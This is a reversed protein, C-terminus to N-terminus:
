RRATRVHIPRGHYAQLLEYSIAGAVTTAKIHCSGAQGVLVVISIDRNVPRTYGGFWTFLYKPNLGTLTGTKGGCFYPLEPCDNFKKFGKKGTGQTTTNHMMQYVKNASEASLPHTLEFPQRKYVVQGKYIVKEVLYPKMMQGSNLITSIISAVHMPSVEFEKNLGAAAQGLQLAQSPLEAKSAEVPLDFYFPKNFGFANAYFQLLPQGVRKGVVGFVGNHSLAFAKWLEMSYRRGIKVQTDPTIGIKEIAASSTIIKFISAIPFTAKLAWNENKFRPDIPSLANSGDYSALALVAGSVPDQLIAAGMKCPNRRFANEILTQLSPRISLVALTDQDFRVVYRELSADYSWPKVLIGKIIKPISVTGNEDLYSSDISSENKEERIGAFAQRAQSAFSPTKEAPANESVPKMLPSAPSIANYEKMMSYKSFDIKEGSATLETGTAMIVHTEPSKLQSNALENGAQAPISTKPEQEKSGSDINRMGPSVDALQSNNIKALKVKGSQSIAKGSPDTVYFVFADVMSSDMALSMFLLYGGICIFSWSKLPSSIFM